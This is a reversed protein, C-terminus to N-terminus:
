ERALKADVYLAMDSWAINGVSKNADLCFKLIPLRAFLGDVMPKLGPPKIKEDFIDALVSWGNHTNYAARADEWLKKAAKMEGNTFPMSFIKEFNYKTNYVIFEAYDRALNVLKRFEKDKKLVDYKSKLADLANEWGEGEIDKKRTSPILYITEAVEQHLLGVIRMMDGHFIHRGDSRTYELNRTTIYYGGQTLDINTEYCERAERPRLKRVIARKTPLIVESALVITSNGLMSRLYKINEDTMSSSSIAYINATKNSARWHTLRKKGLKNTDMIFFTFSSAPGQKANKDGHYEYTFGSGFLGKSSDITYGKFRPPIIQALAHPNCALKNRADFINDIGKFYRNYIKTADADIQVLRDQIATITMDDYSLEERGAQMDIEGIDFYMVIRSFNSGVITNTVPYAVQGMIATLGSDGYPLIGWNKAMMNPPAKMNLCQGTITPKVNFWRFINEAEIKFRLIDDPKVPIVIEFGSPENSPIKAIPICAPIGGDIVMQYTTRFGNYFSYGTFADVYAFPSKSGLGQAGIYDNSDEKTSEFFVTFVTEIDDDSMGPGFDRVRFIPEFASPLQVDFPVADKGVMVHADIANCCIERIVAAIKNKYLKSSLVQFTKRTTKVTFARSEPRHGITEVTRSTTSLKM